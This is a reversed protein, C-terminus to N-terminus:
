VLAVSGGWISGAMFCAQSMGGLSAISKCIFSEFCTTLFSWSPTTFRMAPISTAQWLFLSVSIADIAITSACLRFIISLWAHAPM